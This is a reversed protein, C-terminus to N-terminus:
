ASLSVCRQEIPTALYEFRAPRVIPTKGFRESETRQQKFSHRHPKRALIAPAPSKAMAVSENVIHISAFGYRGSRCRAGFCARIQM